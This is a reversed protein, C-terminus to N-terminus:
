IFENVESAGMELVAVGWVMAVVMAKWGDEKKAKEAKLEEGQFFLSSVRVFASIVPLM